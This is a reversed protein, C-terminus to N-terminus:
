GPVRRRLAEVDVVTIGGYGIEILRAQAFRKLAANCLQRSLGSLNAIEEQSVALHPAGFIPPQADAVHRLAAADEGVKQHALVQHHSCPRTRVALAVPGVLAHQGRERAQRLPQLMAALLQGAALLLHEGDAARQHGVRPQHDQVFGGFAQCRQDDGLDPAHDGRDAGGADGRQDDVAVPADGRYSGGEGLGSLPSLLM